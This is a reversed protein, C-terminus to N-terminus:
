NKLYHKKSKIKAEVDNKHANGQIIHLMVLNILYENYSALKDEPGLENPIISDKSDQRISARLPWVTTSLKM